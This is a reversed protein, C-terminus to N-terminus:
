EQEQMAARLARASGAPLGLSAVADDVQAPPAPRFRLSSLRPLGTARRSLTVLRLNLRVRPAHEALLGALRPAGRLPLGAVQGPQVLLEEVHRCHALLALATRPGIGPVGPVDDVPDGTLAQLEPLREPPLGLWNAVDARDLLRDRAAQWLVDRPGALAQALDKDEGALVSFGGTAAVRAALTALLDDAEFERSAMARLGLREALLRCAQMQWALDEDPLVRGSKYGPDLRHRFGSFLSEDFAIAVAGPRAGALLRALTRAFGVVANLPRGRRDAFVDPVGFWARFLYASADVLLVGGPPPRSRPTQTVDPMTDAAASHTPGCDLCNM